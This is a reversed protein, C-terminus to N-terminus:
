DVVIWQANQLLCRQSAKHLDTGEPLPIGQVPPEGKKPIFVPLDHREIVTGAVILRKGREEGLYFGDPWSQMGDIFIASGEELLAAGVKMNVAVGEVTVVKGVHDSWDKPWKMVAPDGQLSQKRFQKDARTLEVRERQPFPQHSCALPLALMPFILIVGNWSM